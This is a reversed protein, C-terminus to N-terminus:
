DIDINSWYERDLYLKKEKQLTEKSISYKDYLSNDYSTSAKKLKDLNLQMESLVKLLEDKNEIDDIKSLLNNTSDLNSSLSDLSMSLDISDRIASCEENKNKALSIIKDFTNEKSITEPLRNEDFTLSNIIIEMDYKSIKGIVVMISSKINIKYNSGTTKYKVVNSQYNPVIEMNDLYEVRINSNFVTDVAYEDTTFDLNEDFSLKDFGLKTIKNLVLLIKDLNERNSLIYKYFFDLNSYEFLNGKIDYNYNIFKWIDTYKNITDVIIKNKKYFQKVKKAGVIVKGNSIKYLYNINDRNYEKTMLHSLNKNFESYDDLIHCLAILNDIYAEKIKENEM